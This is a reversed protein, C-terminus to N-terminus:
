KGMRRGLQDVVVALILVAGVVVYQYFNEVGLVVLGYQITAIVLAGVITGVITGEGGFLSAGGIVVAAISFMQTTEGGNYAGSTFRAAWLVGAVGALVASLIYVQVLTRNVPIGARKAAELNGGIAYLHQGFRTRALIFWCIATVVITVFVVNPMLPINTQLQALTSTEPVKFWTFWNGPSWNLISNNGLEGLYPPQDAIPYGHSILLAVGEVIFGVALTSIFSPVNWRTVLLGSLLGPLVPALIGGMIGLGVTEVPGFHAAYMYKMIQAAVVSSYGLIWAVSLDIGACIIILTEGLGLLLIQTTYVAIGQIARPSLFNVNNLQQSAITFTAVMLILFAWPWIRRVRALTEAASKTGKTSVGTTEAEPPAVNQSAISM